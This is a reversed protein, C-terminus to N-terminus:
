TRRNKERYESPSLGFVRKFARRFSAGNSYGCGAAVADVPERSDKLLAAAETMRKRQIYESLCEGSQEKYFSSLYNESIRFTDAISTLSLNFDRFRSNVHERIEAALSENHSRKGRQKEEAMAALAKAASRFEGQPHGDETGPYTGQFSPFEASLRLITGRLAAVLYRSEQAPLTREIFNETYIGQLLSELLATNASLVARIVATEVDLPYRYAHAPAPLSQYFRLQGPRGAEASSAATEAEGFSLPLLFPDEVPTGVGFVLAAKVAGDLGSLVRGAFGEADEMYAAQSSPHKIVALSLSSLAVVDEDSGLADGFAKLLTEGLALRDEGSLAAALSPLRGEVAYYPGTSALTSFRARDEAFLSRDRYEGRLLKHFFYTRAIGQVSDVKSMLQRNSDRLKLIAEELGEYVGGFKRSIVEQQPLVLSFLRAIPKSNSSAVGYSLVLAVLFGAGLLMFAVNRIRIASASIRGENMLAVYRWGNRASVRSYQRYGGGGPGSVAAAVLEPSPDAPSSALLEGSPGFVMMYGGYLDPLRSLRRGLEPADVMAVFSGRTHGRYGIPWVLFHAPVFRSGSATVARFDLHQTFSGSEGATMLSRWRDADYGEVELLTGYFLRYDAFGSEYIISDSASLYLMCRSLFEGGLVLSSLQDAVLRKEYHELPDLNRGADLYRNVRYDVVLRLVLKELDVLKRDVYAVSSELQVEAVADAARSLAASAMAFFAVAVAFPPLLILLNTVIYRLFVKRGAGRRM